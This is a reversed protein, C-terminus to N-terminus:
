RGLNLRIELVTGKGIASNLDLIAGIEMARYEMNDLGFSDYKQHDPNFGKGDDGIALLLNNEKQCIISITIVSADSHKIINQIAEQAIRFLNLVLNSSLQQETEINEFYSLELKNNDRIQYLTYQKLRDAFDQTTISERNLAWITDRISSMINQANSRLTDFRQHLAEYQLPIQKTAWDMSTILYTIQAGVNDHLDRSIRERENKVRNSIELVQMQKRYKRKQWLYLTFGASGILFLGLLSLFWWRRYVPAIVHIDISAVENLSNGDDNVAKVKFVFSGAPLNPYRAFRRSGAFIWNKDIGEMKYYYQSNSSNAYQLGVFEFSVTNQEYPLELRKKYWITTDTSFDDDNIRLNTIIPVPAILDDFFESAKFYNIGRVGGFYLINEDDKFFAGTNFEYSQLNDSLKFNKFVARSANLRSLGRNHSVWLANGSGELLGYVFDNALAYDTSNYLKPQQSLTLQYLGKTTTIWVTGDSTPKINKVYVSPIINQYGNQRKIYCGRTTGIYIENEDKAWLNTIDGLNPESLLEFQEINKYRYLKNNIALLYRNFKLQHVATINPNKEANSLNRNVEMIKDAAIDYLMIGAGHFLLLHTDDFREIQFVQQPFSVVRPPAEPNRMDYIDLGKKFVSCYLYSSKPFKYMAKILYYDPALILKFKNKQTLLKNIGGSNTGVWLNGVDDAALCNVIDISLSRIDNPNQIYKQIKNNNKDLAFLGSESGALIWQKYYLISTLPEKAIALTEIINMEADCTLIKGTSTGLLLQGKHAYCTMVRGELKPLQHKSWIGIKTDFVYVDKGYFQYMKQGLFGFMPYYDADWETHTYPYSVIVKGTERQIAQVNGVADCMWIKDDSEHFIRFPIFRESWSFNVFKDNIHNYKSCGSATSIWIDQNNDLFLDNIDGSVLTNADESHHHYTHFEYGDFRNLGDATAFWWFGKGDKLMDRITGQSLGEQVGYRQFRLEEQAIGRPM